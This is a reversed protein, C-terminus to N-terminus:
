APSDSGCMSRLSERDVTAGDIQYCLSAKEDTPSLYVLRNVEPYIIMFITEGKDQQLIIYVWYEEGYNYFRYHKDIREKPQVWSLKTLKLDRLWTEVAEYDWCFSKDIDYDYHIREWRGVPPDRDEVYVIKWGGGDRDLFETQFTGANEAIGISWLSFVFLATLLCILVFGGRRTEPHLVRSLRYRLGSATASLCTTFGKTTGVENLLLGIYKRREDEEMKATAEEDCRLELDEAARRMGIWLSPIFWGLACLFTMTFKMGNDMHVLHIGEHRFIFCLEEDSYNRDPLVVYTTRAFLGVSIPSSVASSRVVRIKEVPHRESHDLREYIDRFMRSEAFPVSVANRLVTRRFHFHSIVKWVFVGLFGAAWVAFFVVIVTRPLRIVLWPEFEELEQGGILLYLWYVLRGIFMMFGPLLLLEACTRASFRKRMLPMLALLLLTVVILSLIENFLRSLHLHMRQPFILMLLASILICLFLFIMFFDSLTRRRKFLNMREMNATISQLSIEPPWPQSPRFFIFLLPMVCAVILIRLAIGRTLVTGEELVASVLRFRLAFSCGVLILVPVIIRLLIRFWTKKTM